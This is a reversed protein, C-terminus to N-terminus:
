AMGAREYGRRPCNSLHHRNGHARLIRTKGSNNPGVIVTLRGPKIVTGDRFNITNLRYSYM